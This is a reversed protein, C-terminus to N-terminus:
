LEYQSISSTIFIDSVKLIGFRIEACDVLM